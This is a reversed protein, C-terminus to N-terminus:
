LARADIPRDSGGADRDGSERGDALRAHCLFSLRPGRTQDRLGFRWSPPVNERDEIMAKATLAIISLAAFRPIQRMARTTEYGDMEADNYGDVGLM